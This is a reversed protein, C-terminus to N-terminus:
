AAVRFIRLLQYGWAQCYVPGILLAILFMGAGFGIGLLLNQRLMLKQTWIKKRWQWIFVAVIVPGLELMEWRFHSGTAILMGVLVPSWWSAKERFKVLWWLIWAFFFLYGSERQFETSLGVLIPHIAAFLLLGFVPLCSVFLQKGLLYLPILLAAGFFINIWLGVTELHTKTIKAAKGTLFQLLQPQEAQAPVGHIMLYETQRIYLAGDRSLVPDMSYCWVRVGVAAVILLTLLLLEIFWKRHRMM